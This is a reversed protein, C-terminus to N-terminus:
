SGQTFNGGQHWADANATSATNSIAKRLAGDLYLELDAARVSTVTTNAGGDRALFLHERNTQIVGNGATTFPITELNNDVTLRVEKEAHDVIFIVDLWAGEVVNGDQYVTTGGIVLTGTGDEALLRFGNGWTELRAGGGEQCFLTQGNSLTGTPFYFTGRFEQVSAAPPFNPDLFYGTTADQVLWSTPIVESTLETTQEFGNITVSATVTVGGAGTTRRIQIYQDPEITGASSTWAQVETTGDTDVSRWETGTGVSVAQSTQRNLVKRLPLEISTNPPQASLDNWEVGSPMDAWKIVNAYNSTTWDIVDAVAVAGIGAGEAATTLATEIENRNSATAYDSFNPFVASRSAADGLTYNGDELLPEANEVYRTAITKGVYASGDSDIDVAPTDENLDTGDLVTAGYVYVDSIDLGSTGEGPEISLARPSGGPQIVSVFFLREFSPNIDNDSIWIGQAKAGTRRATLLPRNGAYYIDRITYTGGGFVQLQDGHPDRADGNLNEAVGARSFPLCEINRLVYAEGGDSPAFSYVDQYIRDFHNDMVVALDPTGIGKVANTLDRFRCGIIEIDEIVASGSAGFASALYYSLGIETRANIESTGSASIIAFHTDTTPDLNILRLSSGPAVSSDGTTATVGSGGVAVHVTETGRNFFYIWASTATPDKWTLAYTASTTTATQVNDVRDYEPLDAATDINSLESGYGHRFSTGNLFRIKGFTGSGFSVCNGYTSPWGPAQFHLNSCDVGRVTNLFNLRPLQCAPTCSRITVPGGAAHMDLDDITRETFSGGRIEVIKNALTAASNAFVADWESDNTVVYDAPALGGGRM